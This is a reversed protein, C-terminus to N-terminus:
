SIPKSLVDTISIEAKPSEAVTDSYTYGVGFCTAGATLLTFLSIKKMLKSKM